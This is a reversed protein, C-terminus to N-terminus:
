HVDFIGYLRGVRDATGSPTDRMKRGGKWSMTGATTEFEDTMFNYDLAM